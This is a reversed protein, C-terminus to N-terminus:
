QSEKRKIIPSLEKWSWNVKVHNNILYHVLHLHSFKSGDGQATYHPRQTLTSRLQTLQTLQGPSAYLAALDEEHFFVNRLINQLEWDPCAEEWLDSMAACYTHINPVHKHTHLTFSSSPLQLLDPKVTHTHTHTYQPPTIQQCVKKSGYRPKRVTCLIEFAEKILILFRIIAGIHPCQSHMQINAVYNLLLGRRCFFGWLQLM